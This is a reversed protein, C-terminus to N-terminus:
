IDNIFRIATLKGPKSDTRAFKENGDYPDIYAIHAAGTTDIRGSQLQSTILKGDIIAEIWKGKSAQMELDLNPANNTESLKYVGPLKKYPIVKHAEQTLKVGNSFAIVGNDVSLNFGLKSNENGVFWFPKDLKGIFEQGNPKIVKGFPLASMSLTTLTNFVQQPDHTFDIEDPISAEMRDKIDQELDIIKIKTFGQGPSSELVQGESTKIHISYRSASINSVTGLEPTFEDENGSVEIKTGIPIAEVADKSDNSLRGERWEITILNSTDAKNATVVISSDGLVRLGKLRTNEIGTSSTFSSGDELMIAIGDFQDSTVSKVIGKKIEDGVILEVQKGQTAQAANIKEADNDTQNISLVDPHDLFPTIFRAIGKGNNIATSYDDLVESGSQLKFTHYESGLYRREYNKLEGSHTQGEETTVIVLKNLGPIDEIKQQIGVDYQLDISTKAPKKDTDIEIIDEGTTVPTGEIPKTQTILENEDALRISKIEWSGVSSPHEDEATHKLRLDAGYNAEEWDILLGPIDGHEEYELIVGKSRMYNLKKQELPSLRQGDTFDVKPENTVLEREATYAAIEEKKAARLTSFNNRSNLQLGDDLRGIM